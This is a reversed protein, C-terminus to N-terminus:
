GGMTKFLKAGIKVYEPGLKKSIFQKASASSLTILLLEKILTREKKNLMLLAGSEDHLGLNLDSEDEM